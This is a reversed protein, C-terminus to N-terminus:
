YGPTEDEHSQSYWFWLAAGAVALLSVIAGKNPRGTGEITGPIAERAKKKLIRKAVLWTFWGMVANRRNYIGM